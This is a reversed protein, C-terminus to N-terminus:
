KNLFAKLIELARDKRESNSIIVIISDSSIDTDKLFSLDKAIIGYSGLNGDSDKSILLKNSDISLSSFGDLTNLNLFMSSSFNEDFFQKNVIAMDIENAAIQVMFKQLFQSNLSNSSGDTIIPDLNIIEKQNGKLIIENLKSEVRLLKDTDVVNGVYTINFYTDKSTLESYGFSTILLILAVVSFIHFKYYYWIYSIKNKVSMNKFKEKNSTKSM